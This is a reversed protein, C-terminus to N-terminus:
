RRRVRAVPRIFMSLIWWVAVWTLWFLVVFMGDDFPRSSTDDAAYWPLGKCWITYLRALFAGPLFYYIAANWVGLGAVWPVAWALYQVGFGPAIALFLVTVAGVQIFLPVRKSPINMFISLGITLVWFVVKHASSSIGLSDFLLAALWPQSTYTAFVHVMDRWSHALYPMGAIVFTAASIAFFRVRPWVGGITLIFCLAFLIPVVKICLALAFFLGAISAKGAEVFYVSAVLFFVMIPDTNGHFGSIVLSVPCAALLILAKADITFGPRRLSLRWVFLVTGADALACAFRVWFQLPLGTLNELQDWFLLVYIMSPPHSMIQAPYPRGHVPYQVGVRYLEAAQGNKVAAVDKRWTTVDLTGYTFLAM